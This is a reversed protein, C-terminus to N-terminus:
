INPIHHTITHTLHIYIGLTIYEHALNIHELRKESLAPNNEAKQIHVRALAQYALITPKDREVEYTWLSSNNEWAPIYRVLAM